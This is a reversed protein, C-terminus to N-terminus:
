RAARRAPPSEEFAPCCERLRARLRRCPLQGPAASRDVYGYALCSGMCALSIRTSLGLPGMGIVCVPRRGGAGLLQFLVAADQPRQVRTAIKVIHAGARWGDAIVRRLKAVAPTGRFDHFSGVVTKGSRRAAAALTKFIPSRIEIDVASVHPLAKAYAAAREKETGTWAGGEAASRVTLIVPIGAREARKCFALWGAGQVGTRDLRLELLDFAPKRLLAARRLTGPSTVSGVIRPVKGLAWRGIRLPSM